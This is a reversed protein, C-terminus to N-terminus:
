EPRQDPVSASGSIETPANDASRAFEAATDALVSVVQVVETPFGSQLKLTFNDSRYEISLNAALVVVSIAFGLSIALRGAQDGWGVGTPSSAAADIARQITPGFVPSVALLALAESIERVLEPTPPSPTLALLRADTEKVVTESSSAYALIMIARGAIEGAVVVQDPSLSELDHQM